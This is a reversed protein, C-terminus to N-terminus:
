TKRRSANGHNRRVVRAGLAIAVAHRAACAHLRPKGNRRTCHAGVQAKCIPCAVTRAEEPSTYLRAFAGAGAVQPRVALRSLEAPLTSTITTRKWKRAATSNPHVPVQRRRESV